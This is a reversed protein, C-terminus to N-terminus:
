LLRQVRVKGRAAVVCPEGAGRQERAEGGPPPHPLPPNREGKRPPPNRGEGKRPPPNASGEESIVSGSQQTWRRLM